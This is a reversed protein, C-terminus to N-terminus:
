DRRRFLEYDELHEKARRQENRQLETGVLGDTVSTDSNETTAYHAQDLNEKATMYVIAGGNHLLTLYDELKTEAVGINRLTEASPEAGSLMAILQKGLTRSQAVAISNQVNYTAIDEALVTLEDYQYGDAHLRKVLQQLEEVNHVVEIRNM